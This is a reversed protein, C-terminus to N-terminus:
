ILKGTFYRIDWFLKVSFTTKKDFWWCCCNRKKRPNTWKLKLKLQCNSWVTWCIKFQLQSVKWLLICVETENKEYGLVTTVNITHAQHWASCVIVHSAWTWWVSLFKSSETWVKWYFSKLPSVMVVSKARSLSIISEPFVTKLLVLM